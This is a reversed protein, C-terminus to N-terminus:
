LNEIFYKHILPDDTLEPHFTSILIKNERCLVPCNKCKALIIVSKATKKIIPARIFIARFKKNLTPITIQEEFSDIQRGYANREIEINALNLSYPSGNKALLIAGACTGWIALENKKYKNIIDNKLNSSELFRGIVTSEGGPMILHTVDAMDNVSKIEKAKIDLKKIAEIHEIVGGQFGIVGVVKKM